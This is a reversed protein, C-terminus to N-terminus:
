RLLAAVLSFPIALLFCMGLVGVFSVWRPVIGRGATQEWAQVGPAVERTDLGVKRQIIALTAAHSGIMLIVAFGVALLYVAWEPWGLAEQVAQLVLEAALTIFLLKVFRLPSGRRGIM